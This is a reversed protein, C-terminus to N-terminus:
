IAHNTKYVSELMLKVGVNQISNKLSKGRSFILYGICKRELICSTRGGKEM